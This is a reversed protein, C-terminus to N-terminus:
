RVSASIIIYFFLHCDPYCTSKFECMALLTPISVIMCALHFILLRWRKDTPMTFLFYLHLQHPCSVKSKSASKSLM